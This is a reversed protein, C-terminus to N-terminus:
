ARAGDARRDGRIGADTAAVKILVNPVDLRDSVVLAQKVTAEADDALDPTCEFSVFGTRGDSLTTSPACPM